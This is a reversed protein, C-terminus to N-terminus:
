ENSRCNSFLQKRSTITMVTLLLVSIGAMRIVMRNEIKLKYNIM